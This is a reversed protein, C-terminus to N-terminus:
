REHRAAEVAALLADLAREDGVLVPRILPRPGAPDRARGPGTRIGGARSYGSAGRTPTPATTRSPVAHQEDPAALRRTEPLHLRGPPSTSRPSVVRPRPRAALDLLLAAQAHLDSPSQPTSSRTMGPSGRVAPAADAIM